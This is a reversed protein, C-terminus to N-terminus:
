AWSRTRCCRGTAPRPGRELHGPRGGPGEAALVRAGARAPARARHQAADGIAAARDAPRGLDGYGWLGSQGRRNRLSARQRDARLAPNRTSSASPSAATSSRTPRPPTSSACCSRATRGPWSSCATPSTATAPVERDAGLARRARRPSAPSSTSARRRTPSSCSARQPDRRDSRAGLGRQEVAAARHMAAPDAVRAAAASSSARPRDRVVDRRSRTGHVTMLHMMWPPREEASRPRRTCLIAQRTARRARDARVPQQVGPAGRRGGAARARGRRLQDARDHARTRGRNTISIRRLEIDDEPSVGIEIHTEIDDDRRRFEARGQSFIAEYSSPASAADAPARDVLVAGSTSTACTASRAGATARRRGRALAHGGPRALPQLRRRANTVMSTTAATPSCTSRPRRRTPRRHLRADADRREAPAARTGAVEAPHPISRPPAQPVREQLLLDTAQFAPDADFRRQM